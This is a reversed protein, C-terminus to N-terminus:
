RSTSAVATAYGVRSDAMGYYLFWKGNFLALGEAFCVQDVQGTLDGTGGVSFPETCRAIPSGPECPDFLAQGPRYTVGVVRGSEVRLAAGNYILLIGQDTLV